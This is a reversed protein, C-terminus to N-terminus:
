PCQPSPTWGRVDCYQPGLLGILLHELRLIHRDCVNRGFSIVQLRCCRMTELFEEFNRGPNTRHWNKRLSGGSDRERFHQAIRRKLDWHEGVRVSSGVYLATNSDAVMYVGKRGKLCDLYTLKNRGNEKLIAELAFCCVQACGDLVNIAGGYDFGAPSGLNDLSPTCPNFRISM